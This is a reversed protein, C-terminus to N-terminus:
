EDYVVVIKVDGSAEVALQPAVYGASERLERFAKLRTTSEEDPDQLISSVVDLGKAEELRQRARIKFSDPKLGGGKNGPNGIQLNGSTKAPLNGSGNPKPPATM